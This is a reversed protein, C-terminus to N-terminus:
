WDEDEIGSPYSSSINDYYAKDEETLEGAAMRRARADSEVGQQLDKWQSNLAMVGFLPFRPDEPQIGTDGMGMGIALNWDSIEERKVRLYWERNWDNYGFAQCLEEPIDAFTKPPVM